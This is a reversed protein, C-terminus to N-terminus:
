NASSATGTASVFEEQKHFLAPPLYNSYFTDVTTTGHSFVERTWYAKMSGDSKRDYQVPTKLTVKRSDKTGYFEFFLRNNDTIYPWILLHGPTDNIFKLDIVGPYITADTGQPSYYSVAYSHNRRQTIPLGADMAARFTTSSVQCLGGGLEPVTGDSKIVLEPLFGESKEVSGLYENFSFEDGPALIVGKMKDTGVKINHKRNSPSGSFNSEGVAVLEKIGFNNTEALSHKPTIEYVSLNSSTANPNNLATLAAITSAYLDLIKGNKPPLFETARGDVINLMPEQPTSSLGAGALKILEYIEKPRYYFNQTKAQETTIANGAALAFLNELNPPSYEILHKQNLRSPFESKKLRDEKITFVENKYLVTFDAAKVAVPLSFFLFLFVTFFPKM